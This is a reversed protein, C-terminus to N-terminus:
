CHSRANCVTRATYRSMEFLGHNLLERCELTLIVKWSSKWRPVRTGLNANSLEPILTVNQVYFSHLISETPLDHVQGFRWALLDFRWSRPPFYLLFGTM